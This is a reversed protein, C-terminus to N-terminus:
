KGGRRLSLIQMTLGYGGIINVKLERWSKIQKFIAWLQLPRLYFSLNAKSVWSQLEERSLEASGVVPNVGIAVFDDWNEIM